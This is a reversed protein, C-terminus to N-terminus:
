VYPHQLYRVARLNIFNLIISKIKPSWLHGASHEDM